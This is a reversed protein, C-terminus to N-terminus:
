EGGNLIDKVAFLRWSRTEACRYKKSLGIVEALSLRDSSFANERVVKIATPVFEILDQDLWEVGEVRCQHAMDVIRIRDEDTAIANPIDM